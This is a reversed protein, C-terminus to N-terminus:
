KTAPAMAAMLEKAAKTLDPFSITLQVNTGAQVVKLMDMLPAIPPPLEKKAEGILAQTAKSLKDAGAADPSLILVKISPEAAAGIDTFLCIGDGEFLAHVLEAEEPKLKGKAAEIAGEDPVFVVSISQHESIQGHATEFTKAREEDPTPMKSGAKLWVLTGDIEKPCDPAMKAKIDPILGYLLEAIKTNDGGEKKEIVFIAQEGAKQLDGGKPASLVISFSVAGAAKIQANLEDFQKAANPDAPQGSVTSITKFLQDRSLTDINLNIIAVTDAGILKDPVHLDAGYCCLSCWFLALVSWTTRKM